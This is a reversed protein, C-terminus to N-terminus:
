NGAQPSGFVKRLIDSAWAFPDARIQKEEEGVLHFLGDVAKETAYGEISEPLEVGLDIVDSVTVSGLGYNYSYNMFGVLDSYIALAKTNGLATTLDPTFATVLANSTNTQFYETAATEGGQLIGLGDSISIGTIADIFIPKAKVAASEAGRNMATILEEFPDSEINPAVLVYADLLTQYPIDGIIPVNVAGNDVTNKLTQIEPPLLIKIAQNQLYGNVASASTVSSDTGVTLAEKLGQVIEDDTLGANLVDNVEDCSAFGIVLASCLILKTFLRM